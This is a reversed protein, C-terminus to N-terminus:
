SLNAKVPKKMWTMPVRGRNLLEISEIKQQLVAQRDLLRPLPELGTLSLVKRWRYLWDHQRLCNVISARRAKKLPESERFHGRIVDGVEKSDYLLQIMNRSDPFQRDFEESQPLEGVLVAGAAAGEYFRGGIESQGSTEAPCDVKARNAIFFRSRKIMDALLERHEVPNETEKVAMTDYIYFLHEKKKLDLLRRHTTESRRGISLIDITREPPDPYPCFRLTDVGLPLYTCPRGTLRELTEASERCSTIIHDFRSLLKIQGKWETMGENWIETLWIVATKSRERWKWISNINMLDKPLMCVAFFLDYRCTNKMPQVGFPITNLGLDRALHISAKELLHFAGNPVPSLLEVEDIRCIVDEFEYNICRSALRHLNRLSFLGIRPHISDDAQEPFVLAESNSYM